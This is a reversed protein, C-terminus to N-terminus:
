ESIFKDSFALLQNFIQVLWVCYMILRLTVFTGAEWFKDAQIYAVIEFIKFFYHMLMHRQSVFKTIRSKM